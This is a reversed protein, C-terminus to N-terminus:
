SLTVEPCIYFTSSVKAVKVYVTIWGKEQPTVAKVLKFTVPTSLGTTTWSAASSTTAAATALIDAKGTTAFTGLPFGSTGLYEIDAFIEDNNPVAGADWVGEVTVTVSSGTTDNWVAIPLCEFPAHWETNATTVMKMAAATTGDAAGDTRTIATETTQVGLYNRHRENRYNTDGSDCNQLIVEGSAPAANTASIGVGAGLKCNKFIFRTPSPSAAVLTKGAVLASLDVGEIFVTAATLGSSFLATPFVAGQIATPTDKWHFDCNRISMIDGTGGFQVTTQDFIVNFATSGTTTGINFATTSNTTGLKKLACLKFYHRGTSTLTLSANTAGTGCNFTVGRYFVHGAFTIANAGTTTVSATPTAVLDASVPPVSGAKNVALVLCPAAATGPSTLTVAGATSEAHDHAMYITDGAAAGAYAATLTTYANAWDAGTAGGAAASDLYKLAM